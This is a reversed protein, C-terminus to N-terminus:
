ILFLGRLSYNRSSNSPSNGGGLEFLSWTAATAGTFDSGGTDYNLTAANGTLVFIWYTGPTLYKNVPISLWRSTTNLAGSVTLVGTTTEHAGSIAIIKGPASSNDDAVGAGLQQVNSSNGKIYIEVSMLVGSYPLIIKKYVQKYASQAIADSSAGVSNTGIYTLNSETPFVTKNPVFLRSAM